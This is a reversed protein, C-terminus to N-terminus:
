PREWVGKIVAIRDEELNRVQNRFMPGFDNGLLLHLGLPPPAPAGGGAPTRERFWQLSPASVDMWAVERLGTRSVLGRVTAAPRLFSTAADRAWPVPFHIPANSGGLIEHIAVRGRPRLVRQIEQYLREKDEINMSSHQTWVADLSQDPFPMALANGHQFRVEKGMGLRRTLDEGVRCYEETIDLVTVHCGLERALTRAPGGLGGGVDLVHMGLQIEALHALELTAEKGRIHFQDVPALDEPTLAEPNKGAARLGALIAAGLDRRGYHENLSRVYDVTSM